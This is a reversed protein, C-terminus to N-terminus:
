RREGLAVSPAARRSPADPAHRRAARRSRRAHDRARAGRVRSRRRRRPRARARRCRASGSPRRPDRHAVFARESYAGARGVGRGRGQLAAAGYFARVTISRSSTSCTAASARSASASSSISGIARSSDLTSSWMARILSSSRSRTAGVECTTATSPRAARRRAGATAAGRPRARAPAPLRRRPSGRASGAPM